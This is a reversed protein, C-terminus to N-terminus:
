EKFLLDMLVRPDTYDARVTLTSHIKSLDRAIHPSIRLCICVPMRECRTVACDGTFRVASRQFTPPLRSSVWCACPFCPSDCLLTRTQGATFCHSGRIHKYKPYYYYYYPLM